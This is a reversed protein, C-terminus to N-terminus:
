VALALQIQQNYHHIFYWIAGIHNELKKSFSLTKRVLRSVRQRLTCNFREIHNTLGTEKGVSHHRDGPIAAQYAQWYDTYCIANQRYQLPLSDWLKQASEGSHDGIYVGAVERTDRDLALWVWQKNKSNKSFSWLEDCELTISNDAKALVRVERSTNAYLENVYDQLWQESVSTVRAIGALSIRELLMKDILQKTEKPIPQKKPNEVFQRNCNRCLRKPTGVSNSGNKVTHESNCYPCNMAVSM